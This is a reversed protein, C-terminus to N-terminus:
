FTPLCRNLSWACGPVANCTAASRYASCPDSSVSAPMADQAPAAEQTSTPDQREEPLMEGGCATLGLLAALAVFRRM